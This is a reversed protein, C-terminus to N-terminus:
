KQDGSLPEQGQPLPVALAERLEQACNFYCMAGHEILRKGMADKELEASLFKNLARHEWTKFLEELKQTNMSGGLGATLLSRGFAPSGKGQVNSGMVLSVM